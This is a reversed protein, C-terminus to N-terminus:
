RILDVRWSTRDPKRYVDVNIKKLEPIASYDVPGKCTIPTFKLLSGKTPVGNCEQILKSRLEESEEQLFQIESIICALREEMVEFSDPSKPKKHKEVNEWKDPTPPTKTKICEYFLRAKKIWEEIFEPCLDVEVLATPQRDQPRYSFYQIKNVGFVYMLHQLQAYYKYPTLGELALDHDDKGPCKIEVLTGSDNWGDCSAGLWKETEHIKVVPYIFSGTIKEFEERAPDELRKGRDMASNCFTPDGSIKENYLQLPTKWPSMGMIVPSDSAMVLNRRMELWEPTGQIFRRDM